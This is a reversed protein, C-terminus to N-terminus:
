SIIEKILLVFAVIISNHLIHVTIPAVLSGTTEYLYVLLLGLTMIPLFGVINSHLLSFIAASLFAALIIGTRKKIARYMFGRFFMEEIIPGGISVFITLFLLIRSRKEEMFAEFVPQPPPSYGLIDILWVSLLLILLLLPIIFIYATIGALINKFFYSSKFGLSSLKQRYKILVFYLIVVGAFIDIFFTNIIMRLNQGANINFFRFVASEAIGVAYAIFIITISARIIDPIGWLVPIGSFNNKLDPKRGKKGFLFILNLVISIFFIFFALFIAYKFFKASITDSEFFEKVKDETVGIEEFTMNSLPKKESIVQRGTHGANIINVTLIFVIMLIYVKERKIFNIM